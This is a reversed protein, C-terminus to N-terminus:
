LKPADTTMIPKNLWSVTGRLQGPGLGAPARRMCSASKVARLRVAPGRLSSHSHVLCAKLSSHRRRQSRALARVSRAAIESRARVVCIYWCAAAAARIEGEVGKLYNDVFMDDVGLLDDPLSDVDMFPLSQQRHQSEMAVCPRCLHVLSAFEPGHERMCNKRLRCRTHTRAALRIAALDPQRSGRARSCNVVRCICKM